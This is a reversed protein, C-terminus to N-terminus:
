SWKGSCPRGRATGRRPRGSAPAKAATVQMYIMYPSPNVIRMARYVSFPDATTAREFRQSFVIQFADGERIHYKCKNVGDMYEAKTMTSTLRSSAHTAARTDLDVMGVKLESLPHDTKIVDVLASLAKM